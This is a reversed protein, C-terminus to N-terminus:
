FFTVTKEQFVLPVSGTAGHRHKAVILETKENKEASLGPLAPLEQYYGERYVFLVIDADQEISGSDRLDSLKPRKDTRSEVGRSLQSLALVPVKLERAINKLVRTIESVESTRNENKVGKKTVTHLLQLYDVVILGINYKRKLRRARHRLAMVSLDSADDIYLPLANLQKSGKELASWDDANLGGSRIKESSIGTVSSLMRMALQESSMELSFFAVAVGGKQSSVMAAQQAINTALATKGMGPRGALIILDSPHLGGLMADLGKIGTTVGVVPSESKMKQEVAKLAKQAADELSIAGSSACSPLADMQEAFTEIIDECDKDASFARAETALAEGLKIFSRRLYLQYITRAYHVVDISMFLNNALGVLYSQCETDGFYNQLTIPDATMDDEMLAEIAKYIQGHFENAFHEARLFDIVSYLASNKILLAGLLTQELNLNQPAERQPIPQVVATQALPNVFHNDSSNISHSMVRDVTKIYEISYWFSIM